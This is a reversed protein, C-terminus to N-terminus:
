ALTSRGRRQGKEDSVEPRSSRCAGSTATPTASGPTNSCASGPPTLQIVRMTPTPTVDVELKFGAKEVYWAKAREVDSVPIPVLELHMEPPTTTM